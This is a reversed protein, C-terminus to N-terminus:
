ARRLTDGRRGRRVLVVALGLLALRASGRGGGVAECRCGGGGGFSLGPSAVLGVDVNTSSADFPGADIAGGADVIAGADPAGADIGGADPPTYMPTCGVGPETTCVDGQVMNDCIADHDCGNPDGDLDCDGAFYDDGLAGTAADRFCDLTLGGGLCSSDFFTSYVCIGDRGNMPSTGSPLPACVGNAGGLPPCQEPASSPGTACLFLTGCPPRCRPVDSWGAECAGVECPLLSAASPDCPRADACTLQGADVTCALAPRPACFPSEVPATSPTCTGAAAVCPNTDHGNPCGDGDCDGRFYDDTYVNPMGALRHCAVVESAGIHLGGACYTIQADLPTATTASTYTCISPVGTLVTGECAGVIGDIPPCDSAGGCGFLTTCDHLCERRTTGNEAVAQCTEDETGPGAICMARATCLVPPACSVVGTAREVHCVTQEATAGSAVLWVLALAGAGVLRQLWAM